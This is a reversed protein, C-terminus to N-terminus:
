VPPLGVSNLTVHEQNGIYSIVAKMAELVIDTADHTVSHFPTM